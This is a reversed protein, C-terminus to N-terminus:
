FPADLPCGYSRCDDDCTHSAREELWDADYDLHASCMSYGDACHGACQTGHDMYECRMADYLPGGGCEPCYLRKVIEGYESEVFECGCESEVTWTGCERYRRPSTGIIPVENECYLWEVHNM